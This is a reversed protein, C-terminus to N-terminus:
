LNLERQIFYGQPSAIMQFAGSVSDIQDDHQSHPFSTAEDLFDSIWEGRVLKVKLAEARSAVPEPFRTRISELQSCPLASLSLSASYNRFAQWATYPLSSASRQEKRM